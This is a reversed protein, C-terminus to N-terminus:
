VASQGFRYCSGLETKTQLKTLWIYNFFVIASSLFIFYRHQVDRCLISIQLVLMPSWLVSLFSLSEVVIMQHKM